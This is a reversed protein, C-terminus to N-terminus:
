KSFLKRPVLMRKFMGLAEHESKQCRRPISLEALVSSWRRRRGSSRPQQATSVRENRGSGEWKSRGEWQHLFIKRYERVLPINGQFQTKVQPLVM